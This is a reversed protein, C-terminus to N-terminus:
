KNLYETFPKDTDFIVDGHCSTGVVYKEYDGYRKKLAHKYNKGIPITLFEFPVEILEEYDKRYKFHQKNNFQFSLTSIMKTNENNYKSCENEFKKYYKQPNLFKYIFNGFLSHLSKKINKKIGTGLNIESYRTTLSSFKGYIKKLREVKKSQISFKKEDEIVSDLPFIDIFIGQNFGFRYAYEGKLIGTTMSNRLQAHGRLSGEDSYETQFFYPHIFEKSAISCLKNYDDRMMMLDIDDDWPIFGKHRVAGLMTGGSAFYKIGNKKCVRDFEVLLDLEVAWVKKMESSITYDCRIEEDLFGDPLKIKLNVM